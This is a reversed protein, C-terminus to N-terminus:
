KQKLRRRAALELYIQRFIFKLFGLPRKKVKRWLLRRMAPGSDFDGERQGHGAHISLRPTDIVDMALTLTFTQTRPLLCESDTCAQYRVTVEIDIQESDLPRTESVLEGVPYFPVVIDVQGSWVNLDVNMVELHLNQTPPFKTAQTIFGPPGAVSVTTAVMGDPVPEGYIHLSEPLDFRVLVKRLVGQRVSGKGGHVAVTLKIEEDAAEVRPATDDLVIRGLAADLLSEASDRKKYSDHFFKAIVKGEEDCVYAGPFPIGHLFADDVSVETNLIGYQRIVASDMDSLLPYPIAQGSCFQALSDQDDYSVAYLAINHEAFKGYADRL